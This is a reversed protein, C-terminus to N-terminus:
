WTWCSDVRQGARGCTLVRHYNYFHSEEQLGWELAATVPRKGPALIAGICLVQARGWTRKSFVPAFRVIVNRLATHLTYM